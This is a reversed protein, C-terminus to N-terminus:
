PSPRLAIKVGNGSEFALTFRQLYEMTSDHNEISEFRQTLRVLIYIAYTLVQQQAPCIRPGGSFPVFDWYVKRDRWREPKFEQVDEGWIDRDHQVGWTGLSVDTGRAVFVPSTGDPGGGSPLVTDRIAVRVVRAAPGILRITELVVYRFEALSKLKEFDLDENHVQLSDQRLRTWLHPHRALEFLVNGVLVSTTIHAPLFVGLVQYRLQVPDRIQKALEDLLVYRKRVKPGDLDTEIQREEKTENLAREVHRDIYQHVKSYSERWEKNFSYRFSTWGAERRRGAWRLAKTWAQLFETSEASIDPQLAGM